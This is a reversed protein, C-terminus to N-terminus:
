HHGALLELRHDVKSVLRADTTMSRAQKCAAIANQWQEQAEYGLCVNYQYRADPVLQNAQQFDALAGAMDASRLKEKGQENLAEAQARKAEDPESASGTTGTAGTGTGTGTETTGTPPPEPAKAVRPGTCGSKALTDAVTKAIVDVAENEPPKGNIIMGSSQGRIHASGLLEGDQGDSLVLLAEIVATNSNNIWGGGGRGTRIINLDLVLDAPAGGARVVASFQCQRQLKELVANELFMAQGQSAFATSKVRLAVTNVSQLNAIPM